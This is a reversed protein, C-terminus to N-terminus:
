TCPRGPASWTGDGDKLRKFSRCCTQQTIQGNWSCSKTNVDNSANKVSFSETFGCSSGPKSCRDHIMTIGGTGPIILTTKSSSSETDKLSLKRFRGGTRTMMFTNQNGSITFDCNPNQIGKACQPLKELDNFLLCSKGDYCVERAQLRSALAQSLSFPAWYDETTAHFVGMIRVKACSLPLGNFDKQRATGQQLPIAFRADKGCGSSGLWEDCVNKFRTRTWVIRYDHFCICCSEHIRGSGPKAANECPAAAGTKGALKLVEDAWEAAGRLAETDDAHGARPAVWLSALTLAALIFSTVRRPKM